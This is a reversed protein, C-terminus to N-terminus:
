LINLIKASHKYIEKDTFKTIILTLFLIAKYFAKYSGIIM